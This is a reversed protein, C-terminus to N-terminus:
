ELTVPYLTANFAVHHHRNLIIGFLAPCLFILPNGQLFLSSFSSAEGCDKSIFLLVPWSWLMLLGWSLPCTCCATDRGIAVTSRCRLVSDKKAKTVCQRLCMSGKCRQLLVPCHPKMMPLCNFMSSILDALIPLASPDWTFTDM